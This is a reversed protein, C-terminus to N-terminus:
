FAGQCHWLIAFHGCQMEKKSIWRATRLCLPPTPPLTCNTVQHERGLIPGVPLRHGQLEVDLYICSQSFRHNDKHWKSHAAFCAGLSRASSPTDSCARLTPPWAAVSHKVFRQQPFCLISCAQPAVARHPSSPKPAQGQMTQWIQSHM